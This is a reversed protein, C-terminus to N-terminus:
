YQRLFLYTATALGISIIIIRITHSSIRLALRSGYFGGITTGIAMTLGGRWDILGTDLLVILSVVAMISVAINKLLNMKHMDHLKTFGLFSLMVLGFGAGFYGGYVALPFLAIGILLLPGNNPKRTASQKHVHFHLLPQFAFLVVALLILGPILQDFGEFSTRRLIMAGVAAGLTCPLLLWLYARPVRKIYARYGYASALQGPLIVLYSTVNAVLAPMGTALLVPFGVLMGGGAIANMGGVLIGVLLLIIDTIM